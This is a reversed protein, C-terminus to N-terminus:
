HARGRAHPSVDLLRVNSRNFAPYFEDSSAPRKCMHRYWPKLIAATEKDKVVADVRARLREMVRFDMM